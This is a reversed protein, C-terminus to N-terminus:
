SPKPKKPVRLVREAGVMNLILNDLGAERRTSPEGTASGNWSVMSRPQFKRGFGYWM